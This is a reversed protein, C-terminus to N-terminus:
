APILKLSGDKDIYSVGHVSKDVPTSGGSGSDLALGLPAAPTSSSSSPKDDKPQQAPFPEGGARVAPSLGGGRGGADDDDKVELKPIPM